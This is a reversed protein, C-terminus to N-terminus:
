SKKSLLYALFGFVLQNWYNVISSLLAVSVAISKDIGVFVLVSAIGVEVFGLGSPTIPVMMLANSMLIIFLMLFLNLKLGVAISVFYFISVEFSWLILTLFFIQPITKFNLSASAALEFNKIIHRIRKPLMKLLLKKQKKILLFSTLVVIVLFILAIIVEKTGKPINRGFVALASLFLLILIFGLDFFREVFITGLANIRTMGFSTKMLHARYFDGIRAPLLTNVFQGLFYIETISSLKEKFGINSLLIKWRLGKILVMIYFIILAIVVFILNAKSLIGYLKDIKASSIFFYLIAFALIFSVLVKITVRKKIFQVM